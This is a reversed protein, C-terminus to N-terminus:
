GAHIGLINLKGGVPIAFFARERLGKNINPKDVFCFGAILHMVPFIVGWPCCTGFASALARPETIANVTWDAWKLSRVYAANM